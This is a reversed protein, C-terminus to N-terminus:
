HPGRHAQASHETSGAQYTRRVGSTRHISLSTRVQGPSWPQWALCVSPMSLYSGLVPPLLDLGSLSGRESGQPFEPVNTQIDLPHESCAAQIRATEGAGKRPFGRTPALLAGCARSTGRWRQGEGGLVRGAIGGLVKRVGAAQALAQPRQTLVAGARLVRDGVVRVCLHHPRLLHPCVAM